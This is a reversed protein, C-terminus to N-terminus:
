GGAKRGNREAYEDLDVEFTAAGIPAGSQPDVLTFDIQQRRTGTRRSVEVAGVHVAEPGVAFTKLYKAEDGQWYDSTVGSQGANLGRADAVFIETFLGGSEAKKRVLYTSLPNGMLQAILPKNEAATEGRWQKDLADIDAQTIGAHRENRAALVLHTIPVAVIARMSPLLDRVDPEQAAAAASSLWAAVALAAAAIRGVGPKGCDRRKM